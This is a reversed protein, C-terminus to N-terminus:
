YVCLITLTRLCRQRFQLYGDIARTAEPTSFTIYEEKSGEYVRIQKIQENLPVNMLHRCKLPPVAGVRMGRSVLLVVMANIKTGTVSIMKQIDEHTYAGDKKQSHANPEEEIFRFKSLKKWNLMVDNMDYLHRLSAM